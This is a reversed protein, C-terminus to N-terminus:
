KMELYEIRERTRDEFGREITFANGARDYFVSNGELRTAFKLNELAARYSRLSEESKGAVQLEEALAYHAVPNRPDLEISRRLAAVADSHLGLRICQEAMWQFLMPNKPALKTAELMQARAEVADGLSSYALAASVHWEVSGKDDSLHRLADRLSGIASETLQGRKMKDIISTPVQQGQHSLGM